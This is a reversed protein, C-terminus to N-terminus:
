ILPCIYYKPILKFYTHRPPFFCEEANCVQKARNLGWPEFEDNNDNDNDNHLINLAATSDCKYSSVRLSNKCHPYM